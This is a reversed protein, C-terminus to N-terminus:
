GLIVVVDGRHDKFDARLGEIGTIEFAHIM